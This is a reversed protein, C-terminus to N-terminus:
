GGHSAELAQQWVRGSYAVAGYGSTQYGGTWLHCGTNPEPISHTELKEVFSTPQM